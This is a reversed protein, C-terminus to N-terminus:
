IFADLELELALHNKLFYLELKKISLFINFSIVTVSNKNLNLNWLMTMLSTVLLNYFKHAHKWINQIYLNLLKVSAVFHVM